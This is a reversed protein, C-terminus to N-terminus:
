GCLARVKAGTVSCTVVCTKRFSPFDADTVVRVFGAGCDADCHIVRTHRPCSVSATQGNPNQVYCGFPTATGTPPCVVDCTPATGTPVPCTITGVQSPAPVRVLHGLPSKGYGSYEDYSPYEENPYNDGPYESGPYDDGKPTYYDSGYHDGGKPHYDGGKPYYEGGRPYYEGGKPYESGGYYEGGKNYDDKHYNHKKAAIAADVSADTPKAAAAGEQRAAMAAVAVSLLMALALWQTTKVAM